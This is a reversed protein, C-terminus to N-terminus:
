DDESYYDDDELDEEEFHYPEYKNKDVLEKEWSMLSSSNSDKSKDNNVESFLSALLQILFFKRKAKELQKKELQKREIARDLVENSKEKKVKKLISVDINDLVNDISDYINSDNILISSSVVESNDSKKKLKEKGEEIYDILKNYDDITENLYYYSSKVLNILRYDNNKDFMDEMQKLYKDYFYKLKKGWSYAFSDLYKKNNTIMTEIEKSIKKMEKTNTKYVKIMMEKEYIM